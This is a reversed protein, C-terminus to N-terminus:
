PAAPPDDRRQGGPMAGKVIPIFLVLLGKVKAGAGDMQTPFAICLAGLVCLGGVAPAYGSHYAHLLYGGFAALCLAALVNVIAKM